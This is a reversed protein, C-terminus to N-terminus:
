DSVSETKVRASILGTNVSEELFCGPYEEGWEGFDYRKV